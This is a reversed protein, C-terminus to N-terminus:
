FHAYCCRRWRARVGAGFLHWPLTEWLTSTPDAALLRGDFVIFLHFVPFRTLSLTVLLVVLSSSRSAVGDAHRVAALGMELEGFPVV